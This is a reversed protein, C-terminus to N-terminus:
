RELDARLQQAAFRVEESREIMARQGPEAHTVADLRAQASQRLASAEEENGAALRAKAQAVEVRGLLIEALASMRPDDSGALRGKAEEFAPM